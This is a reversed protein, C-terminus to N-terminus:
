GISEIANQEITIRIDEPVVVILVVTEGDAAQFILRRGRSVKGEKTPFVRPACHQELSEFAILITDLAVSSAGEKGREELSLFLSKTKKPHDELSVNSEICGSAHRSM